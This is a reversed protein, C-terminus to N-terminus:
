SAKRKITAPDIPTAKSAINSICLYDVLSMHTVIGTQKDAIWIVNAYIDKDYLRIYYKGNYETAEVIEQSLLEDITEFITCWGDKKM